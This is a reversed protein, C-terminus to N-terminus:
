AAVELSTHQQQIFHVNPPLHLYILSIPALIHPPRWMTLVSDLMSIFSLLAVFHPVRVSESHQEDENLRRENM